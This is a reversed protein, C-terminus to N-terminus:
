YSSATYGFWDGVFQWDIAICLVGIIILSVVGIVCNVIRTKTEARKSDNESKAYQVALIIIYISGAAGIVTFLPGIWTSLINQITEGIQENSALLRTIGM